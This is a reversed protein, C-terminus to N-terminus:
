MGAIASGLTALGTVILVVSGWTALVGIAAKKKSIDHVKAIGIIALIQYWIVFVDFQMLLFYLFEGEMSKPLLVSLTAAIEFKGIILSIITMIISGIVVPFYSYAIVSYSQKFTGYGGSIDAIGNVISAKVLWIFAPVVMAIALTTYAQKSAMADMNTPIESGTDSFQQIMQNIFTEKYLDMKLFMLIGMIGATLLIFTLSTPHKKIDEFTREPEIIIYKLREWLTLQKIEENNDTM